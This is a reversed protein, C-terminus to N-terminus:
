KQDIWIIIKNFDNTLYCKGYKPSYVEQDFLIYYKGYYDDVLKKIIDDSPYLIMIRKKYQFFPYEDEYSMNLIKLFNGNHFNFFIMKYLNVGILIINVKTKNIYIKKYYLLRNTSKPSMYLQYCKNENFNYSKMYNNNSAIIYIINDEYYTKINSTYNKSNEIEKIKEGKLNFAFIPETYIGTSNNSTIIYIQNNYDVFCADIKGEKYIRRLTYICELSNINWIKIDNDSLSLILDRSNTKDLIHSFKEIRNKHANKIESMKQNYGVDFFLISNKETTHVFILADDISNFLICSLIQKNLYKCNLKSENDDDSNDNNSANNNDDVDDEEEEGEENYYFQNYSEDEEEDREEREEDEEGKKVQNLIQYYQLEQISKCYTLEKKNKIKNTQRIEKNLNKVEEVGLPIFNYKENYVEKNIERKIKKSLINKNNNKEIKITKINLNKM